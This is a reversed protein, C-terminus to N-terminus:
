LDLINSATKPQSLCARTCMEAPSLDRSPNGKEYKIRDLMAKFDRQAERYAQGYNRM